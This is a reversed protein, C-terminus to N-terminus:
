LHCNTGHERLVLQSLYLLTGYCWFRATSRRAGLSLLSLCNTGHERPVLQSLHLRTGYCWFRAASLRAGLLFVSLFVQCSCTLPNLGSHFPGPYGRFLGLLNTQCSVSVAPGIAESLIPRLSLPHTHFIKLIQLQIGSRLFAFAQKWQPM